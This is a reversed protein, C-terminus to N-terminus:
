FLVKRRIKRGDECSIKLIGGGQALLPLFDSGIVKKKNILKGKLSFLSLEKIKFAFTIYDNL